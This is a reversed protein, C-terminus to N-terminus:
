SVPPTRRPSRPARQQGAPQGSPHDASLAPWALGFLRDAAAQSTKGHGILLRLWLPSYLLDLADDVDLDARLEGNEVGRAITAEGRARRHAFFRDRFDRAVGPDGQADAVLERILDGNRSSFMRAVRRMQLRIAEYTSDPLDDPEPDTLEILADMIVASKSPWWRYITQKGVRAAGAIEDVTVAHPGLQSVLKRASGLVRRRAAEDRTRAM